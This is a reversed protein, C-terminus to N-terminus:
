SYKNRCVATQKTRLARYAVEQDVRYDGATRNCKLHYNIQKEISKGILPIDAFVSGYLECGEKGAAINVEWRKNCIAFSDGANEMCDSMKQAKEKATM